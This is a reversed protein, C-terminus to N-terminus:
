QQDEPSGGVFNYENKDSSTAIEPAGTDPLCRTSAMNLVKHKFLEISYKYFLLKTIIRPFYLCSLYLICRHFPNHYQLTCLKTLKCTVVIFVPCKNCM